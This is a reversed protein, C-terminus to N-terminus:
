VVSKRDKKTAPESITKEVSEDSKEEDDQLYHDLVTAQCKAEEFRASLKEFTELLKELKSEKEDDIAEQLKHIQKKVKKLAKQLSDIDDSFEQVVSEDLHDM